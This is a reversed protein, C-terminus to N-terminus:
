SSFYIQYLGLQEKVNELAKMRVAEEPSKLRNFMGRLPFLMIHLQEHAEGETTCMKFIYRFDADLSDFLMQYKESSSNLDFDSTREIMKNVGVTTEPNVIWKKGDDLRLQQEDSGQSHAESHENSEKKKKSKDDSKESGCSVLFLLIIIASLSKM